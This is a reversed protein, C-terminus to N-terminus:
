GRLVPCTAPVFHEPAFWARARPSIHNVDDFSTNGALINPNLLLYAAQEFVANRIVGTVPEPLTEMNLMAAIDRAATQVAALRKEASFASFDEKLLHTAFFDDADQLTLM